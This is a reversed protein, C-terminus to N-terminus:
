LRYKIGSTVWGLPQGKPSHSFLIKPLFNETNETKFYEIEMYSSCRRKILTEDNM